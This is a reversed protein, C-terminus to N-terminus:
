SQDNAVINGANNRVAAARRAETNARTRTPAHAGDSAAIRTATHTPTTAAANGSSKGDAQSTGSTHVPSTSTSSGSLARAPRGEHSASRARPSADRSADSTADPAM